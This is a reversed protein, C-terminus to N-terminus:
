GRRYIHEHDLWDGVNFDYDGVHDYGFSRYFAQARHNGSWVGLWSPGPRTAALHDLATQLLRRGMGLGQLSPRVYLQYLEGAGPRVDPHPLKCPGVQAYGLLAGDGEVVWITREPDALERAVADRSHHAVVFRALDETPYPIAFGEVFTEHFTQRKLTALNAADASTALRISPSMAQRYRVAGGATKSFKGLASLAAEARAM